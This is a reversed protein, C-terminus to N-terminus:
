NSKGFRVLDVIECREKAHDYYGPSINGKQSKTRTYGDVSLQNVKCHRKKTRKVSEPFCICQDSVQSASPPRNPKKKLPLLTSHQLVRILIQQRSPGASNQIIIAAYGKSMMSLAKEVFVMGNHPSFLPNLILMLLFISLKKWKM